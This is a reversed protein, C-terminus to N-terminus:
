DGRHSVACDQSEVIAKATVLADKLTVGLGELAKTSNAQQEAISRENELELKRFERADKLAQRIVFHWLLIVALVATGFTLPLGAIRSVDIVGDTAAQLLVM